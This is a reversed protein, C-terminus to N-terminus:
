SLKRERIALSKKQVRLWKHMAVGNSTLQKRNHIGLEMTKTNSDRLPSFFPAASLDYVLHAPLNRHRVRRSVTNSLQM